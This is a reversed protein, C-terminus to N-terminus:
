HAGMQLSLPMNESIKFAFVNWKILELISIKELVFYM